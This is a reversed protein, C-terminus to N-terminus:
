LGFAYVNMRQLCSMSCVEAVLEMQAGHKYYARDFSLVLGMLRCQRTQAQIIVVFKM